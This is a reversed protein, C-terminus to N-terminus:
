PQHFINKFRSSCYRCFYIPTNDLEKLDGSFHMLCREDSCHFLNFLHGIEHLAVKAIRELMFSTTSTSEDANVKLRHLSALALRGGQQAEGFTHTFIPIFLDVDVVGLIKSYNHFSKSELNKIITAANYQHRKRDLAYTPHPLSSLVDAELELYGIIHAAISNSVIGPVRGISVVGIRPNKFSM